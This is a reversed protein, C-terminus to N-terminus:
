IQRRGGPRGPQSFHCGAGTHRLRNRGDSRDAFPLPKDEPDVLRRGLMLLHKILYRRFEGIPIARIHSDLQNGGSEQGIQDARPDKGASQRIQNEVRDFERGTPRRVANQIYRRGIFDGIPQSVLGEVTRSEIQHSHITLDCCQGAVAKVLKKEITGVPKLLQIQGRRISIAGNFRGCLADMVRFRDDGAQYDWGFGIQDGSVLCELLNSEGIAAPQNVLITLDQEQFRFAGRRQFM